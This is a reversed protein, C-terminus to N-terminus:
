RVFVSTGSAPPPLYEYCGIDVSTGIVRSNASLDSAGAMWAEYTGARICPSTKQLRFNYTNLLLNTGCATTPTVFIPDIAVRCGSATITAGANWINTDAISCNQLTATNAGAAIWLSDTWVGVCCNSWVICNTMYLYNTSPAVGGGQKAIANTNNCITCNDLIAYGNGGAFLTGGGKGLGQVSSSVDM